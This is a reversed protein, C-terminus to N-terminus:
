KNMGLDLKPFPYTSENWIYEAHSVKYKTPNFNIGTLLLHGQLFVLFFVTSVYKRSCKLNVDTLPKQVSKFLITKLKKPVYQMIMHFHQSALLRCVTINM